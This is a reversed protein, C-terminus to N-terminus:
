READAYMNKKVRLRMGLTFSTKPHGEKWVGLDRTIVGSVACDAILLDHAPFGPYIEVGLAEAQQGLWRCLNGLSIIYNGHNRMQPPTPLRRAGTETLLLFRDTKAPPNRPAGKAQRDPIREIPARPERVPGCLCQAGLE